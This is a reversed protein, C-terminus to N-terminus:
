RSPPPVPKAERRCARGRCARIADLRRALARRTRAYRPDAHRSRLQEPDRRLDYLERSGDAHEVWVFRETRVAQYRPIDPAALFPPPAGDQDLDGRAPSGTELLIPRRTRRRPDRAFPLLSRGDLRRRARANAADVITAALDTNVILERSVAGRRVGPGRVITPVRISPEYVLYKGFPVRHEGTLFGNDSAFVILTRDLEGTRRLAGVIDRVAEDVALLSELRSRHSNAALAIRSPDMLPFADPYFAPKDSVDAENFSARPPLPEDAFRGRHRPASRITSGESGSERLGESHPALFALSLFFPRRSPARRRILEIARDRYVDTQYLAPDEVARSGYTRLVGNENLTYGWMVYTTLDVSGHWDDWGPPVDPPADRGYGNLYKGVHATRYGARQLWVPLTNGKGALAGYGGTPPLNGLVGHNHAYQGTLLTARAPCCLPYSSFSNAFTTGKRGLLRRTHPMARMTDVTQDDTMVLVINPRAAHTGAPWAALAALLAVAAAAARRARGVAARSAAPAASAGRV